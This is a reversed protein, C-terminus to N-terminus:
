PEKLIRGRRFATGVGYCFTVILAEHAVQCQTAESPRAPARDTEHGEKVAGRDWSRIFILRTPGRDSGPRGLGGPRQMESPFGTNITLYSLMLNLVLSLRFTKHYLVGNYGSEQKDHLRLARQNPLLEGSDGRKLSM